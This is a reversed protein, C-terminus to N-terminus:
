RLGGGPRVSRYRPVRPRQQGVPSTSPNL